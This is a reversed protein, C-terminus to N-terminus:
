VAKFVARWDYDMDKFTQAFLRASCRLIYAAFVIIAFMVILNLPFVANMKDTFLATQVLYIELCLGGVLKIIWGVTCHHYAKKMFDSNCLKFFYFVTGLLPIWTLMQFKNYVAIDKFAYLAYFAVVCGILKLGDWVFHYKYERQSIGMMAGMLMFMFFHFWKFYGAGYMNFDMPTNILMFYVACAIAVAMFALRLYKFMYRQIFYLLVYYLMICSVFWGGGSLLVNNINNQYGFLIRDDFPLAVAKAKDNLMITNGCIRYSVIFWNLKDLWDPYLKDYKYRSGKVVFGDEDAIALDTHVLIPTTPNVSEMELMKLYTSEIKHPLWIDDQDSFMYYESHINELLWIFSKKAGRHKIEDDVLMIRSDKKCYERVIEVTSDSSGDDRIYLTWDEFSQGMISEIQYNLYCEGNYTAM